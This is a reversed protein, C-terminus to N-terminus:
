SELSFYKEIQSKFENEIYLSLVKENEKEKSVLKSSIM